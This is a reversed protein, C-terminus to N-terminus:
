TRGVSVEIVGIEDSDYTALAKGIMTGVKVDADAAKAVGPIDSTVLIDGKAIKGVVKCPVRGQLAIQNKLGPCAGNMSYAANDSVIGAVRRDESTTSITVEKDGGFVLVTGVEYEKDGEYYEALDAAYTAQMRSGASLTWRGTITGDTSAAGTSITTVGTVTGATITRTGINFGSNDLTAFTTAGNQSRFEHTTNNYNTKNNAAVSGAGIGIGVFSSGGGGGYGFLETFGNVTSVENSRIATFTGTSTTTIKLEDVTVQRGAFDKNADRRVLTNATSNSDDNVISYHADDTFAGSTSNIRKIYGVGSSFQSKKIAGGDAVIDSYAVASPSASVTASPNALVRKTGIQAIKTLAVGADKITLWGSTANFQASDFSALGRDAQTIGVADARTTASNMNLKSQSIGATANVDNDIIVGPTINTRIVNTTSDGTQIEFTVDGTPTFNGITNKDGTLALLQGAQIETFTFLDTGDVDKLNQINIDALRAADTELDPEKLNKIKFNNLDMDGKMALQGSLAMFGGADGIPILNNPLVVTGSHSLGLRRDIYGRVAAETPVSDNAGDSMSDDVSFESVTAGRKFGLGDLQSLAISASFTVTGTGQDVKFFPGVAFNGYQDTTVFFARGVDREQVQARNVTAGAADFDTAYLPVTNFDNVAKGFIDNPYNTDAYGGTGIELFDHSTVRVLAIRITLTGKAGNTTADIGSRMSIPSPFSIASVDLPKDLTILSYIAGGPNAQYGSVIYEKGEYFLISNLVRDEVYGPLDTVAITTQGQDGILKGFRVLSGATDVGIETGEINFVVSGDVNGGSNTIVITTSNTISSIVPDTGLNGTTVVAISGGSSTGVTTNTYTLSTTTCDIVTASPNNFGGTSVGSISVIQGKAYPPRRQQSFTVTATTGNGTVGTISIAPRAVLRMGPALRDTNNLGSITLGSILGNVGIQTSEIPPNNTIKFSNAGYDKSVVWYNENTFLGGPVSGGADHSFRIQSGVALGHGVSTVVTPTAVSFTCSTLSGPTRFPQVEYLDFVVYNYNERFQTLALGYPEVIATKTGGYAPGASLDIAGGTKTASITFTTPTPVSEIYYIEGEIIPPGEFRPILAAPLIDGAEKRIKIQLGVRQRHPVDTTFIGTSLDIDTITFVDKDFTTDYDNFELVRYVYNSENFVFATSPRTAVDVVDGTLVVFSNQRITVRTGHPISGELGSSSSINLRALNIAPDISTASSIVYRTFLNNHNVELESGNLPLYEDYTVYLTVSGKANLTSVTAAYVSAGQALQHYLGAPTPVELPDSGEAVLAYNGHSSSGGISRIQGGTLAYYSIQCYYTFMSVAETLGGNAVVLGYGLDNVQTFDNSLMSRNGPMLIEYQNANLNIWFVTSNQISTKANILSNRAAVKNSDYSYSGLDVPILVPASSTGGSVVAAVDNLLNGIQTVETASAATGPVRSYAGGYAPVPDTNQIVAQCIVKVRNIAAATEEEQGAALQLTVADGVGDYYKLAADRTQSNGGYILDYAVAEVLYGVDRACRVSDYTFGTAFPAINGAIQASIWTITQEKIYEINSLLLSKANAKNTSLGPPNPLVLVPAASAGNEIITNIISNSDEIATQYGPVVSIAREHAYTIARTTIDLQGAVVVQANAQRYSLGAKRQHYNSGFVIDYGLGDIILGVDRRCVEQNYEFVGFPWPTTEDLILQASSYWQSTGDSEATPYDVAYNYNRIYNIRYITDNVIFSCPTNPIRMLGDVELITSLGPSSEPASVIRFQQNGTFGDVFLGGAFTKRGTSRSFSASEQCYPSKTLIQGEPDLVMMFGGHGQCTVARIINADNCLFVDLQNNDKPYNAAGSNSIVDIMGTILNAIVDGAGLESVYARDVVQNEPPRQTNNIDSLQFESGTLTYLTDIQTNNIVDQALTNIRQIGATTESLQDSIAKLSSVNTFYKLAASMSRTYGGYKLDFVLADIILGVDRRCLSQDYVFDDTFPANNNKIQNNIWGIVQTKIFERNIDLLNAASRRYGRNNITPYIPQTSDSLYHYGFPQEAVTIGDVTPDRRFYLSAWPSSSMGSMPAGERAAKPKIITRRFEDGIIAVNQPIRLPYNEEYIGSEVFISIQVNKTVDGYAIIEGVIFEGSLLDVDFIECGVTSSETSLEGSHALIQAIAGSTEGRLLLGERIDRTRIASPTASLVNGTFDTRFGETQIFFRPLNVIVNPLSTFNSGKDTVTIGTIEGNVVDARGFAGNGGGGEIRVSVLGYGSGGDLVEINNVNYTVDVTLNKGYESTTTTSVGTSGPLATYVGTTIIKINKVSGRGGTGPVVNVSLVEFSAPQVFTGGSLTVVDGPLYLEGSANVTVSEVSMYLQGSFGSGAGAVEGISALTCYGQGDNYTLVKKYPGVDIPAELIIEEARKLAAELTRYAFSLARGQLNRNLSPRDDEGSTAVYLNVSSGFGANDVYRKTAAIRGDWVDDDEPIPDRSLILPGTMEGFSTDVSGTAPDVADVGALSIKTDVYGKNAALRDPNAALVGHTSQMAVKALNVENIDSIDILNGIPSRVAGYQANFPGGLNPSPDGSIDAFLNNLVIRNDEFDVRIGTGSELKRFSLGDTTSNVTVMSNEQGTYVDPTDDLGLFTLRDGLGLSSYLERFNDNVKRFADRISDGTGDNGITGIDIPKRAM